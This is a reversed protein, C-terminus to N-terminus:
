VISIPMSMIAPLVSKMRQRWDPLRVGYSNGLYSYHSVSVSKEAEFFCFIGNGLDMRTICDISLM